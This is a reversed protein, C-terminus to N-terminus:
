EADWTEGEEKRKRKRGIEMVRFMQLMQVNLTGLASQTRRM